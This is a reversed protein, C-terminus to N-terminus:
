NSVPAVTAGRINHRALSQAVQGSAKAQEVFSALLARAAAGRTSPLGMAQEIVMFRGPLLRLGALRAADAERQQRVRAAIDANEALFRDVVTPL